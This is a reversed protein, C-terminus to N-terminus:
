ASLTLSTTLQSNLSVSSGKGNAFVALDDECFGDLSELLWSYRLTAYLRVEM